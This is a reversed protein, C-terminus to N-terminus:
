SRSDKVNSYREKIELVVKWINPHLQAYKQQLELASIIFSKESPTLPKNKFFKLLKPKIRRIM